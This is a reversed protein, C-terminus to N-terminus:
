LKVELQNMYLERIIEANNQNNQSHQEWHKVGNKEVVALSKGIATLNQTTSIM